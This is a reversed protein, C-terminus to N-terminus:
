QAPSAAQTAIWADMRRALLDLPLAGESLVATHFDRVDFRPGLATEAKARLRRLEIEGIKYGLAQGPWSVYRELETTINHPALASNEEFCKRAQPLSWRKWHIGTDAVLRCARWMEYSLRGFMEYPDRYIGMEEGLYEAYLGWGETFATVEANRRFWPLDTREQALAIQIHHGPAAEHLTLAPLEYLPRQDLKTTNVMYGGAIGQQPSGGNYRGTTYTPAIDAPVPRVGYSLRPLVRFLGPLRDDARKAIEAAHMLLEDPTKAYFRPDSRLYALFEPFTGKFGAEAMVTQMRARIRAVESLGLAHVEDPTMRTTTHRRILYAYFAAGNPRDRIALSAPARPLYESEMFRLLARQAPIMGTELAARARARLAAADEPSITSPLTALPAYLPSAEASAPVARVQVLAAEVVPRPQVFRTALGRRLNATNQAYYGPLAELRAIWAEADAKTRVPTADALYGALSFFGSDNEFAIRGPDFTMAELRDDVIRTLFERNFAADADLGGADVGALRARFGLLAQKRAADAAPSPDPLRSLAARDGEFGATIPDQAREYAEFDAVIRAFGDLGAAPQAAAGGTAVAALAFVLSFCTSRM